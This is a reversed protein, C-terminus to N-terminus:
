TNQQQEQTRKEKHQTQTVCAQYPDVNTHRTYKTTTNTAHQRNRQRTQRM